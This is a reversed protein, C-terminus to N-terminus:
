SEVELLELYEQPIDSSYKMAEQVYGQIERMDRNIRLGYSALCLYLYHDEAPSNRLQELLRYAEDINQHSLALGMKLYYDVKQRFEDLSLDEFGQIKWRRYLIEINKPPSLMDKAKRFSRAANSAFRLRLDIIGSNYNAVVPNAIAKLTRQAQAFKGQMIEVQFIFAGFEASGFSKMIEEARKLDRNLAIRALAESFLLNRDGEVSSVIDLVEEYLGESCLVLGLLGAVDPDPANSFLQRLLKLAGENNDTVIYLKALTLLVEKSDTLEPLPSELLEIADGYQGTKIRFNVKKIFRRSQASFEPIVYSLNDVFINVKERWSQIM